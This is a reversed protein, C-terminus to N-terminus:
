RMAPPLSSAAAADLFWEVGELSRVRAAPLAAHGTGYSPDGLIQAVIARKEPGTVLFFAHSSRGIATLTLSVRPVRPEQGPDREDVVWRDGEELTTSGPFLSATHGDPGVGLLVADFLRPAETGPVEPRFWARLSAEYLDRAKALPRVEGEIRHIREASIGLPQFLARDALGFNSRPDDPGVAREDVFGFEVAPWDISRHYASALLQFLGEPTSGGSLAVAARRPGRPSIELLGRLREALGHYTATADPYVHLRPASM